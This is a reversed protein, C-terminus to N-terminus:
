LSASRLSLEGDREALEQLRAIGAQIVSRLGGARVNQRRAVERLSQGDILHAQLVRRQEPDLEVMAKVLWERQDDLAREDPLECPMADLSQSRACHLAAFADQLRTETVGLRRALGQRSRPPQSEPSLGDRLRGARVALDRLRWPIRLTAARDRRYHMVQGNARSLLYSSPKLGRSADFRDVGAILGLCAEQLLDDYEEPGQRRQRKAVLRALGLHQLVRHNRRRLADPLPRRQEHRWHHQNIM